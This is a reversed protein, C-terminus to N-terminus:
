PKVKVGKPVPLVLKKELRLIFALTRGEPKPKTDFVASNAFAQEIRDIFAMQAVKNGLERGRM